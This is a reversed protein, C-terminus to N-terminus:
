DEVVRRVRPLFGLMIEYPITGALEALEEPTVREDGQEGLLVVEDALTVGPIDTVDAMLMDMCVRGVIPARRGRVLVSARGGLIRPYGDGYGIPLTMIRTERSATFARGYGVSDGPHITELRLPRTVLRQALRLRGELAPMLCGYLGIGPRVMDHQYAPKLCTSTAAAHAVPRYGAARAMALAREFAENQGRTSAEDEDDCFHTFIGDMAVRPCDRWAELLAALAEPSRVGVRSMGTDIKLHASATLDLAEAAAQLRRLAEPDYVALSVGARVADACSDPDAGGLVLIPRRVGAERLQLAEEVVAVAFADAGAEELRLAFRAAGHGYADAKVVAMMKVNEPLAARIERANRELAGLSVRMETSRM